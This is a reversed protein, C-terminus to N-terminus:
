GNFDEESLGYKDCLVTIETKKWPCKGRLRNHVSQTTIGLMEALDKPSMGRRAMEARLAPYKPKRM